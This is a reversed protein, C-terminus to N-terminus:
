RNERQPKAQKGSDPKETKDNQIPQNQQGQPKQVERPKQETQPKQQENPAAQKKQFRYPYEFSSPVSRNNKVAAKFHSQRIQRVAVSDLKPSGSSRRVAASLVRGASDTKVSLLVTGTDLAAANALAPQDLLVPGSVIRGQRRSSVGVPRGGAPPASALAKGLEDAAVESEPVVGREAAPAPKSYSATGATGGGKGAYSVEIKETGRGTAVLQSHGEGAAAGTGASKAEAVPGREEHSAVPAPAPGQTSNREAVMGKGTLSSKEGLMRWGAFIVFVLVAASVAPLILRAWALSPRRSPAQRRDAGLIRRWVRDRHWDWYDDVLKPHQVSKALKGLGEIQDLERRCDACTELHTLVQAAQDPGLENDAYAGLLPRTRDCERKM